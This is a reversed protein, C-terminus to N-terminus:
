DLPLITPLESVSVMTSAFLVEISTFDQVDESAEPFIHARCTRRSSGRIYAMSPPSASQVTSVDPPM